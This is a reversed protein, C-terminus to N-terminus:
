RVFVPQFAARVDAASANVYVHSPPGIDALEVSDSYRLHDPCSAGGIQVTTNVVLKGTRLEYARVPIAIKHFTVTTPFDPFRKNEYPCSQVAAGDKEAGACIV